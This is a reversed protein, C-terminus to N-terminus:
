RNPLGINAIISNGYSEGYDLLKPASAFDNTHDGGPADQFAPFNRRHMNNGRDNQSVWNSYGLAPALPRLQTRARPERQM